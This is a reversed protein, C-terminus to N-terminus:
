FGFMLVFRIIDELKKYVSSEGQRLNGSEETCFVAAKQGLDGSKKVGLWEGQIFEM